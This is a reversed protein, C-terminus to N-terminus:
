VLWGIAGVLIGGVIASVRLRIAYYGRTLINLMWYSGGIALLVACQLLRVERQRVATSQLEASVANAIQALSTDDVNLLLAERALIEHSTGEIERFFHQCFRDAIVDSEPLQGAIRGILDFRPSEALRRYSPPLSAAILNGIQQAALYQAAREDHSVVALGCVTVRESRGASYTALRHDLVWPKHLFSAQSTFKENGAAMVAVITSQGTQQPSTTVEAAAHIYRITVQEDAVPPRQPRGEVDAAAHGPMDYSASELLAQLLERKIGKTREDSEASSDNDHIEIKVTPSQSVQVAHPLIRLKRGLDHGIGRAASEPSCYVDALFLKEVEPLWARQEDWNTSPEGDLQWASVVENAHITSVFSLLWLYLLTAQLPRTYGAIAIDPAISRCTRFM